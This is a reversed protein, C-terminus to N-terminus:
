SAFRFEDPYLTFLQISLKKPQGFFFARIACSLLRQM